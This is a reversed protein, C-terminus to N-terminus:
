NGHHDEMYPRLAVQLAAKARHLITRANGEGLDMVAAIQRHSLGDIEHMVFVARQDEPLDAVAGRIARGLEQRDLAGPADHGARAAFEEVPRTTERASRRLENLCHNRAIAYLWSSFTRSPDFSQRARIARLFVDQTFDEARAPEHAYVHLVFGYVKDRYRDFLCQFADTNGNCFARMLEEDTM